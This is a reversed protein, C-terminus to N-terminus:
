PASIVAIPRGAQTTGFVVTRGGIEGAAGVLAGAFSPGLDLKTWSTGDPSTWAAGSGDSVTGIAIFGHSTAVVHLMRAGALAGSAPAQHWARGDSSTWSAANGGERGVAIVGPGGTIVDRVEADTPLGSTVARPWARGDTSTWVVPAGSSEQGVVVLTAGAAAVGGMTAAKFGPTAAVPTWTAGDSSTVISADAPVEPFGGSVDSGVAALGPGGAAVAGYRRATPDFGPKFGAPTWTAGDSSTWFRAAPNGACGEPGTVCGVAVLRSGSRALADIEAQGFSTEDHARTWSLGDASTWVAARTTGADPVSGVAVLTPGLQSMAAVSGAGFPSLDTVPIWGAGAPSPRSSASPVESPTPAAPPATTSSGQTQATACASLLVGVGLLAALRRQGSLVARDESRGSASWRHGHGRTPEPGSGASAVISILRRAMGRTGQFGGM